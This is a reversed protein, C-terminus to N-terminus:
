EADDLALFGPKKFPLLTLVLGIIFIFLGVLKTVLGAYPFTVWKGTLNGDRIILSAVLV